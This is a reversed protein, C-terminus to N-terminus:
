IEFKCGSANDVDDQPVNVIFNFRISGYPEITSGTEYATHDMRAHLTDNFLFM